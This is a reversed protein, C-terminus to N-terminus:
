KLQIVHTRSLIRSGQFYSTCCISPTSCCRAWPCGDQLALRSTYTGTKNYMGLVRTHAVLLLGLRSEWLQPQLRTPAWAWRRRCVLDTGPSHPASAGPAGVGMAARGAAGRPRGASGPVSRPSWATALSFCCLRSRSPVPEQWGGGRWSGGVCRRKETTKKCLFVSRGRGEEESLKKM